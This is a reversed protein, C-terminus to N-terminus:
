AVTITVSKICGALNVMSVADEKEAKELNKGVSLVEQPISFAHLLLVKVKTFFLEGKVELQKIRGAVEEARKKLDQLAVKLSAVGAQALYIYYKNFRQNNSKNVESLNGEALIKLLEETSQGGTKMNPLIVKEQTSINKPGKGKGKETEADEKMEQSGKPESNPANQNEAESEITSPLQIFNKEIM